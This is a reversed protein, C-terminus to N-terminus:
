QFARSRHRPRLNISPTGINSTVVGPIVVDGDYPAEEYHTGDGDMIEDNGLVEDEDGYNM